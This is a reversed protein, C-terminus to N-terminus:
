AICAMAASLWSPLAAGMFLIQGASQAL